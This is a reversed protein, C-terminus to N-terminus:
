SLLASASDRTEDMEAQRAREPSAPPKQTKGEPMEKPEQTGTNRSRRFIEPSGSVERSKSASRPLPSGKDARSSRSDASHHKASRSERGSSSDRCGKKEQSDPMAAEGSCSSGARRVTRASRLSGKAEPTVSASSGKRREKKSFRETYIVSRASASVREGSGSDKKGDREAASCARSSRDRSRSVSSSVGWPASAIHSRERGEEMTLSASEWRTVARAAARSIPTREPPSVGGGGPNWVFCISPVSEMAERPSCADEKAAKRRADTQSSDSRSGASRVCIEWGPRSRERAIFGRFARNRLSKGEPPFVMESSDPFMASSSDASFVM